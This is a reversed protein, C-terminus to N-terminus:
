IWGGKKLDELIKVIEGGADSMCLRATSRMFKKRAHNAAPSRQLEVVTEINREMARIQRLIDDFRDTRLGRPVPKEPLAGALAALALHRLMQVTAMAEDHEEASVHVVKGGLGEITRLFEEAANGLPKEHVAAFRKGSFSKVSPGFLPHLHLLEVRRLNALGRIIETKRSSIEILLTGSKMLGAARICASVTESIPVSIIVAEAEGFDCDTAVGVGISAAIKRAKESSRSHILVRAGAGALQRAFLRGMRGAGGVIM